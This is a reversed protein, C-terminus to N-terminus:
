DVGPRLALRLSVWAEGLRHLGVVSLKGVCSFAHTIAPLTCSVAISGLVCGKLTDKPSDITKGAYFQAGGNSFQIMVPSNFKKAAELVTNVSSSTVCNVAPIAYGNEKAHNLLDRVEQGYLVGPRISDPMKPFHKGGGRLNLNSGMGMGAAEAAAALAIVGLIRM